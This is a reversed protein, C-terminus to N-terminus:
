WFLVLVSVRRVTKILSLGKLGGSSSGQGGDKEKLKEIERQLSEQINTSSSGREGGGHEVESDSGQDGSNCSGSYQIM